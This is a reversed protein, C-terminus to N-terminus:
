CPPPTIHRVRVWEVHHVDEIIIVQEVGLSAVDGFIGSIQECVIVHITAEDSGTNGSAVKLKENVEEFPFKV